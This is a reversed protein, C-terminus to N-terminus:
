GSVEPVELRHGWYGGLADLQGAFTEYLARLKQQDEDSLGAGDAAALLPEIDKMAAELGPLLREAMEKKVGFESAAEDIIDLAIDPLNKESLYRKAYKVAAVRAEPSFTVRHHEEYKAAVGNVIAVAEDFPPEGVKVKEFRRLLAKDKELHKTYEEETTAGVLRLQGRALAPKLLNAADMGAGGSGAGMITHVEDIFLILRGA